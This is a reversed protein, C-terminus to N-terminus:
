PHYMTLMVVNETQWGFSRRAKDHRNKMFPHIQDRPQFCTQILGAAERAAEAASVAYSGSFVQTGANAPIVPPLSHSGVSRHAM